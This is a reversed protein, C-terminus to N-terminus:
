QGNFAATAVTASTASIEPSTASPTEAELYRCWPDELDIREYGRMNRGGIRMQKSKVGFPKLLSSLTKPDLAKKRLAGWTSEPLSILKEILVETPLSCATGFVTKIDALMQVGLSKTHESKAAVLAVAAVRAKEPWKGGALAAVTLLPEWVDANRDEIGPPPDSFNVSTISKAWNQLQEAIPKAEESNARQRWPEVRENPARRRMRIVVSRTMLTDPLDHLGALAVACYAPLEETEISRGRTVCRGAMAGKRHGANLMGRVDENDKARPGFVTDIEDYLITPLGALDSVKRFLYAPTTNVAHIARPVLPETVELLRSKGSGPEPSLVALRPTSDWFEMLWTHAIWLVHAVRAAESPYSVFRGVFRYIEDFLAAGDVPQLMPCVESESDQMDTKATQVAVATGQWPETSEILLGFQERITENDLGERHKEDVWDSVDLGHKDAIPEGDWPDIVKISKAVTAIISAADNAQKIGSKDHDRFVFAHAGRIYENLNHTWNKFSTALIGMSRLRDADKEGETFCIRDNGNQMAEILEPLHYPVRDIGALNYIYGGNGDPRRQRFDKPQHRINEYLVKGREDTYEYVALIKKPTSLDKASKPTATSSNGNLRVIPPQADAFLDKMELDISQLVAETSCDAFCKLLIKGGSGESISLSPAKDGHAPCVASFGRATKKVKEFRSLIETITM